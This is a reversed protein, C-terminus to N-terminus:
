LGLSAMMSNSSIQAHRREGSSHQEPHTPYNIHRTTSGYVTLKPKM